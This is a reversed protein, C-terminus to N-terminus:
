PAVARSGFLRANKPVIELKVDNTILIAEPFFRLQTADSEQPLLEFRTGGVIGVSVPGRYGAPVRVGDCLFGVVNYSETRLLLAVSGDDQLVGDEASSAVFSSLVAEADILLQRPGMMTPGRATSALFESIAARVSLASAMSGPQLSPQLGVKRASEANKARLLVEGLRAPSESAGSTSHSRLPPMHVWARWIVGKQVEVHVFSWVDPPGIPGEDNGPQVRVAWLGDFSGLPEPELKRKVFVKAADLASPALVQQGSGPHDLPSKQSSEGPSSELLCYFIEDNDKAKREPLRSVSSVVLGDGIRIDVDVWDGVSALSCSVDGPLVRVVWDGDDALEPTTKRKVFWKAASAPSAAVVKSCEITLSLDDFPIPGIPRRGPRSVVACLYNEEPADEVGNLAGRFGPNERPEGPTKTASTEKMEIGDRRRRTIHDAAQAGAWSAPAAEAAEAHPPSPEVMRRCADCTVEDPVVTFAARQEGCLAAGRRGRYHVGAAPKPWVAEVIASASARVERVTKDVIAQTVAAVALKKVDGVLNKIKFDM